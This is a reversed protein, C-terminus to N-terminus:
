IMFKQEAKKLIGSVGVSRLIVKQNSITETMAFVAKLKDVYRNNVKIIGKQKKDNWKDALLWIGAKATELKGLIENSKQWIAQYVQKFDKIGEKSIVEFVVYRKKEKLSPMLTKLKAM